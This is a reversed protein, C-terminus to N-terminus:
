SGSLPLRSRIGIAMEVSTARRADAGSVNFGLHLGRELAFFALPCHCAGCADQGDSPNIALLTLNAGGNVVVPGREISACLGSDRVQRPGARNGWPLM